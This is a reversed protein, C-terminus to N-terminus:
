RKLERLDEAINDLKDLKRLDRKELWFTIILTFILSILPLTVNWFLESIEM